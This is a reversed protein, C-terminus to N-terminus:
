LFWDLLLVRCQTVDVMFTPKTISILTACLMLSMIKGCSLLRERGWSTGSWSISPNLGLFNDSDHNFLMLRRQIPSFGLAVIVSIVANVLNIHCMAYSVYDQLLMVSMEKGRTVTNLILFISHNLGLFLHQWFWSQVVSTTRKTLFWACCNSLHSCERSWHPV